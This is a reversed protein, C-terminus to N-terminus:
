RGGYRKDLYYDVVKVGADVTNESLSRLTGRLGKGSTEPQVGEKNSNESSVQKPEAEKQQKQGTEDTYKFADPLKAEPHDKHYERMTNQLREYDEKPLKSYDQKALLEIIEQNNKTHLMSFYAEDELPTRHMANLKTPDAGARLLTEVTQKNQSKAAYHLVSMHALGDVGISEANVDAGQEILKQVEETNGELAARMLPTVGSRNEAKTTRDKIKEKIEKEIESEFVSPDWDRHETTTKDKVKEPGKFLDSGLSPRNRVEKEIENRVEKEIESEFVSPDWDRHETM